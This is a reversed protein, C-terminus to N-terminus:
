ACRPVQMQFVDLLNLGEKIDLQWLQGMRDVIAKTEGHYSLDTVGVVTGLDNFGLGLNPDKTLKFRVRRDIIENGSLEHDL